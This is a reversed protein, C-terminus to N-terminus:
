EEVKMEGGYLAAVREKVVEAKVEAAPIVAGIRLEV